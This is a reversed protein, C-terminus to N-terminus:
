VCGGLWGFDTRLTTGVFVRAQETWVVVNVAFLLFSLSIFLSSQLMTYCMVRRAIPKWCSCSQQWAVCFCCVLPLPLRARLKWFHVVSSQLNRTQTKCVLKDFKLAACSFSSVPNLPWDTRFRLATCLHRSIFDWIEPFYDKCSPPLKVNKQTHSDTKTWSSSQGKSEAPAKSGSDPCLKLKLIALIALKM